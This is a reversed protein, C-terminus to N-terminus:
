LFPRDCAICGVGSGLASSPSLDSSSTRIRMLSESEFMDQHSDSSITSILESDSLSQFFPPLYILVYIDKRRKLFFNYDCILKVNNNNKTTTKRSAICILHSFVVMKHSYKKHDNGGKFKLLLNSNAKQQKMKKTASPAPAFHCMRDFIVLCLDVNSQVLCM